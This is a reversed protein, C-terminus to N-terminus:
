VMDGAELSVMLLDGEALPFVLLCFLLVFIHFFFFLVIGFLVDCTVMTVDAGSTVSFSMLFAIRFGDVDIVPHNIECLKPHVKSNM